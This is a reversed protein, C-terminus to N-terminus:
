GWPQEVVGLERVQALPDPLVELLHHEGAPHAGLAARAREDLAARGRRGVEAGKPTAEHREEPLVLVAAQHQGGGLEVQEVAEATAVLEGQTAAHRGGMCARPLQLVRKGLQALTGAGAVAVEPQQAELDVLDVREARALALTVLEARLALPQAAHVAQDRRRAAAGLRDGGVAVAADRQQEGLGLPEGLGHRADIRREVLDRAPERGQAELGLIEAGLQAAIGFRELRLGAPELLDLLPELQVLPELALM